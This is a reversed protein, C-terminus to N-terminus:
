LLRPSEVINEISCSIDGIPEWKRVVYPLHNKYKFMLYWKNIGIDKGKPFIYLSQKTVVINMHVTSKIVPGYNSSFLKLSYTLQSTVNVVLQFDIM